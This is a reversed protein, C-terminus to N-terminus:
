NFRWRQLTSTIAKKQRDISEFLPGVTPDERMEELNPKRGHKKKFNAQWERITEQMGNLETKMGAATPNFFPNVSQNQNEERIQQAFSFSMKSDESYGFCRKPIYATRIANRSFFKSIM